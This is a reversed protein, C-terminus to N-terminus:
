VNKEVVDRIPAKLGHPMFTVVYEVFLGTSLFGLAPAIRVFARQLELIQCCTYKEHTVHNM